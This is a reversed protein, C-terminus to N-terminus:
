KRSHLAVRNGESDSFAAMYGFDGIQKKPVWVKGGAKEVRALEVSLDGSTAAFYILSGDMTPKYWDKHMVLAAGAGTGAASMPFFAMDLPGMEHRELKTGLVEEYFAIARKMDTVAIEVWSVPNNQPASM